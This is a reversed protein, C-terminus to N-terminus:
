PTDMYETEAGNVSVAFDSAHEVADGTADMVADNLKTLFGAFERTWGDPYVIRWNRNVAETANADEVLDLYLASAHDIVITGEVVKPSKKGGISRSVADNLVNFSGVTRERIPPTIKQVLPLATFTDSAPSPLPDATSTGIHLFADVNQGYYSM